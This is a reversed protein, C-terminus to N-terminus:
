LNTIDDKGIVKINNKVLVSIASDPNEFRFVLLAKESFKEVFGYMYEININNENLVGLINALGGPKDEVELAVIETINAVFGNYKLIKVAEEPKDVVIRLVGFGETEAITLARINIKSAGLVSCVEYLRGQRNELFISLQILKM